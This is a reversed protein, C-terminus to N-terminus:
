VLAESGDDDVVHVCGTAQEDALNGLAIEIPTTMLDGKLV